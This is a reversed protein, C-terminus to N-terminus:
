RVVSAIWSIYKQQTPGRSDTFMYTPRTGDPGKSSIWRQSCRIKFHRQRSFIPCPLSFLEEQESVRAVNTFTTECKSYKNLSQEPIEIRCILNCLVSVRTPHRSATLVVGWSHPLLTLWDKAWCETNCPRIWLWKCNQISKQQTMNRLLRPYKLPMARSNPAM